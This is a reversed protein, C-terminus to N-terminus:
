RPEEDYVFPTGHLIGDCIVDLGSHQGARLPGLDNLKLTYVPYGARPEIFGLPIMRRFFFHYAYQRARHRQDDPMPGPFPLRDLIRFYEEPNKADLTIGKNRIWAEGAVIVPIGVSALEVGTKTGYIVVANCLSMLAYTSVDSEPPVITINSPLEPLHRALERVIPQRSVPFGSIEAPHVRIVLQLDPRRGFYECTAVLWELMGPFANVPYHLQADWSVNTLLGVIPKRTDLGVRAAEISADHRNPKHFVIWDFLGERRSALYHLLAQERAATLEEHQWTDTPESLLTHHYTDHHSFVFRRKRYAVNWTVVRVGENRACEGIVGWPVYIGHTLVVCEFALTKLLRRVACATLVAAHLYRRLVADGEPEDDLSGSAFFRLAGAYAHEGLGLGDVHLDRIDELPTDQAVATAHARDEATIWEGYRHITVGVATYVDEAPWTCDRCLDNSPGHQVFRGIDPYLSAECEACAPLAADCLLVHVNAGRLTLANALASELTIAHAYAGISTGLLIRPGTKAKAQAQRLTEGDDQLIRRWNPYARYRAHYWRRLLRSTRWLRPFRRIWRRM